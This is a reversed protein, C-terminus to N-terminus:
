RRVIERFGNRAGLGLAYEAGPMEAGNVRHERFPTHNKANM